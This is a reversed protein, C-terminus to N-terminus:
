LSLESEDSYQDLLRQSRVNLAIIRQNIERQIELIMQPTLEMSVEHHHDHDHGEHENGPVEVLENEWDSLQENLIIVSDLLQPRILSDAETQAYEEIAQIKQAVHEGIKVSLNHVQAAEKLLDDSSHSCAVIILALLILSRGM